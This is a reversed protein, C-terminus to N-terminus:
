YYRSINFGQQYCFYFIIRMKGMAWCNRTQVAKRRSGFIIDTRCPCHNRQTFVVVGTRRTNCRWLGLTSRKFRFTEFIMNTFSQKGPDILFSYVNLTLGNNWNSVFPYAYKGTELMKNLKFADGVVQKPDLRAKDGLVKYVGSAAGQLWMYYYMNKLAHENM